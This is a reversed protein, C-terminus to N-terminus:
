YGNLEVHYSHSERAPRRAAGPRLAVPLGQLQPGPQPQRRRRVDVKRVKRAPPDAAPHRGAHVSCAQILLLSVRLGPASRSVTWSSPLGAPSFCLTLERVHLFPLALVYLRMREDRSLGRIAKRIEVESFEGGAGGKLARLLDVDEDGDDGEAGAYGAWYGKRKKGGCVCLFDADGGTVARQHQHLGSAGGGQQQERLMRVEAQLAHLQAASAAQARELLRRFHLMRRAHLAGVGALASRMEDDMQADGAGDGAASETYADLSLDPDFSGDADGYEDDYGSLSVSDAAGRRSGRASHPTLKISPSGLAGPGGPGGPSFTVRHQQGPSGVGGLASVRRPTERRAALGGAVRAAPPTGKPTTSANTTAASPKRPTQRAPTTPATKPPLPAAKSLVRPTTATAAAPGNKKPTAGAAKKQPTKLPSKGNQSPAFSLASPPPQHTTPTPSSLHSHSLQSLSLQSLLDADNDDFPARSRSPALSLSQTRAPSPSPHGKTASKKQPSKTTTSAPLSDSLDSSFSSYAGASAASRPSLLV